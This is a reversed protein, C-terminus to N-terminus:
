PRRRRRPPRAQGPQAVAEAMPPGGSCCIFFCGFSILGDFPMGSDRGEAPRHTARISQPRRRAVRPIPRAHPRVQRLHGGSRVLNNKPSPDLRHELHTQVRHAPVLGRSRNGSRLDPGHGGLLSVGAAQQRSRQIPPTIPEGSANSSRGGPPTECCTTRGISTGCRRTQM